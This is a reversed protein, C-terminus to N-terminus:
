NHAHWCRAAGGQCASWDNKTLRVQAMGTGDVVASTRQATHALAESVTRGSGAVQGSVAFSLQQFEGLPRVPAIDFEEAMVGDLSTACVGSMLICKGVPAGDVRLFQAVNLTSLRVPESFVAHLYLGDKAGTPAMARILHPASGTFFDSKWVSAPRASLEEPSKGNSIQLDSDQTVILTYWHDPKLGGVPTVAFALGEPPLKFSKLTASAALTEGEDSVFSANRNLLPVISDRRGISSSQFIVSASPDVATTGPLLSSQTLVVPQDAVTNSPSGPSGTALPQSTPTRPQTCSIALLFGGALSRSRM